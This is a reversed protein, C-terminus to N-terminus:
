GEDGAAAAFCVGLGFSWGVGSDLGVEVGVVEFDIVGVLEGQESRDLV